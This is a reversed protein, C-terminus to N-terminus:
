AVKAEVISVVSKTAHVAHLRLGSAALLKAMEAESRQRGADCVTMMHVDILPGPPFTSNKEVLVECVLLSSSPDSAMAARIRDLIAKCRADDWDHLIDKLVFADCGAPVGDFFSGAIREVREDVGRARLYPAAAELVPAQDFLVGKPGSPGGHQVLIEALLTGRGGAVDCVRRFTGFDFSTAISAADQETLSTMAGAFARGEEPHKELWDWVSMGHVRPFAPEGSKVTREIDAWAHANAPSGFYCAPDRM